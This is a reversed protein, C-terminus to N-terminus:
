NEASTVKIILIMIMIVNPKEQFIKIPATECIKKLFGLINVYMPDPSVTFNVKAKRIKGIM